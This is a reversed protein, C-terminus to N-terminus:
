IRFRRRAPGIRIIIRGLRKSLWIENHVAQWSYDDGRVGTAIMIAAILAPNFCGEVVQFAKGGALGKAIQKPGL